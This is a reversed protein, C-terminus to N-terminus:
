LDIKRELCKPIKFSEDTSTYPVALAPNLRILLNDPQLMTKRWVAKETFEVLQHTTM